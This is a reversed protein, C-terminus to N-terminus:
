VKGEKWEHLKCRDTDWIPCSTVDKRCQEECILKRDPKYDEAEQGTYQRKCDLCIFAIHDPKDSYHLCGICQYLM